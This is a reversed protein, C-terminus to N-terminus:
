LGGISAISTTVRKPCDDPWPWCKFEPTSASRVPTVGVANTLRIGRRRVEDLPFQNYGVGIAQIWKLKDAHELLSDHWAGSVVLVDVEPMRPQM